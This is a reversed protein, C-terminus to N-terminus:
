SVPTLAPKGSAKACAAVAADDAGGPVAEAHSVTMAAGAGPYLYVLVTCGGTGGYQWLEAGTETRKLTPEGWASRLADASMGKLGANGSAGPLMATRAPTASSGAAATQENKSGGFPVVDNLTQCGAVTTAALIAISLVSARM